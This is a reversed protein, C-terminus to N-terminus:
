PQLDIITDVFSSPTTFAILGSIGHEPYVKGFIETRTDIGSLCNSTNILVVISDGNNIRPSAAVCSADSDRVVILGFEDSQVHSSNLTQFLGNSVSSSYCSSNYSLIVKNTTDSLSLSAYALDIDDSGAIPTIFVALQTIKTGNNYGSVHSVSIGSSIERLTETGTKLTQQQLSDMTQMLVTASIGAVLIMAIFIILSGIGIAAYEDRGSDRVFTTKM